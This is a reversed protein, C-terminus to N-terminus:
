KMDKKRVYRVVGYIMRKISELEKVQAQLETRRAQTTNYDRRLQSLEQSEITKDVETSLIQSKEKYKYLEKQSHDLKKKLRAIEQSIWKFNERNLDVQKRDIYDQYIEALTNAIRVAQVPNPNYCVLNVLNTDIVPAITLSGKVASVVPDFNPVEEAVESRKETGQGVLIRGMVTQFFRNLDMLMVRIGQNKKKKKIQQQFVERLQLRDVVQKIIPYSILVKFHTEFARQKDVYDQYSYNAQNPLTVRNKKEHIQITSTAQYVPIQISNYLIALSFTIVFCAIILWLRKRLLFLYDQIHTKNQDLANIHKEM